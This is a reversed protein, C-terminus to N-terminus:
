EGQVEKKFRVRLPRTMAGNKTTNGFYWDRDTDDYMVGGYGPIDECQSFRWYVNDPGYFWYGDTHYEDPLWVECVVWGDDAPKSM